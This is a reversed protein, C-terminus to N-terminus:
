LAEGYLIKKFTALREVHPPPDKRTRVEGEDDESGLERESLYM